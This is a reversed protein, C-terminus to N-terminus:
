ALKVLVSVKNQCECGPGCHTKNKKCKCRNTSTGRKCNCGKILYDITSQIQKQVKSDEWDFSHTGDSNLLWGSTQPAPLHQFMDEKTSAHWLKACWCIRLWHRWLATCTALREEESTIRESVVERIKNLWEKHKQKISSTKNHHKTALFHSFHLYTSKFYMTGVLRIFAFLGQDDIQHLSGPM